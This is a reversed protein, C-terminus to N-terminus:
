GKPTYKQGAMPVAVVAGRNRTSQYVIEQMVFSKLAAYGMAGITALSLGTITLSHATPNWVWAIGVSTAAAGLVSLIRLMTVKEKTVWTLRPNNKLYNIAAVMIGSMTVQTIVLNEAAM